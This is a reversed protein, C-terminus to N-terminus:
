EGLLKEGERKEWNKFKEKSNLNWKSNKKVYKKEKINNKKDDCFACLIFDWCSAYNQKKPIKQYKHIQTLLTGV